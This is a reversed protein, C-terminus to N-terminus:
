GCPLTVLDNSGKERPLRSCVVIVFIDSFHEFIDCNQFKTDINPIVM